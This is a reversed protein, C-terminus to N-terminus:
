LTRYADWEGRWEKFDAESQWGFGSRAQRSDPALNAGHIM